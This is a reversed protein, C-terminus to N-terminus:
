KRRRGFGTLMQFFLFVFAAMILLRAIIKMYRALKMTWEIVVTVIREALPQQEQEQQDATAM